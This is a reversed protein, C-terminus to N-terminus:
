RTTITWPFWPIQFRSKWLLTKARLHSDQTRDALAELSGGTLIWQSSSFSLINGDIIESPYLGFLTPTSVLDSAQGVTDVLDIIQCDKKGTEDWM